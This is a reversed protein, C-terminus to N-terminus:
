KFEGYYKKAIEKDVKLLELYYRKAIKKNGKELNFILLKETIYGYDPSKKYKNFFERSKEMAKKKNGIKDYIEIIKILALDVISSDPYLINIKTFSSLALKYDKNLEHIEGIYYISKDKLTSKDFNLVMEYHKKSLDYNAKSYYIKGLSYNAKDGYEINKDIKKYVDIAEDYRKSKEYIRGRWYLSLDEKSLKLSWNIANNYDAMEYYLEIIKDVASEKESKRGEGNYIKEYEKIAAKKDNKIEYISAVILTLDENYDSKKFERKFQNILSIVEDHNNLVTEVNILGYKAQMKLNINKTLDYTKKYYTKAEAYKEKNYYTEAIMFYGYDESKPDKIMDSYIKKANDYQGLKFYAMAKNKNIDLVFNEYKKNLYIDAYKVASNYDDALIFLEVIKNISKEILLIQSDKKNIIYIFDKKGEDYRGLALLSVGKLYITDDTLNSKDIRNLLKQYEGNAAYISLLNFNIDNDYEIALYKLYIQEAKKEMSIKAYMNGMALYINKLYKRDKAFSKKYIEFYNEAGVQDMLKAKIIIMKYLNDVSKKDNYIVSYYQNALNYDDMQFASEGIFIKMNDRYEKPLKDIDINKYENYVRKFNDTNYLINVSYYIYEDNYKSNKLYKFNALADNNNELVMYTKAIAYSAADTRKIKISKQYNSVAKNYDSIKFYYDGLDKYAKIKHKEKIIKVMYNNAKNLDKKLLYLSFIEYVSQDYYKSNFHHELITNFQKIAMDYNDIRKYSIALMYTATGRKDLDENEKKLFKDLYISSEIFEEKNFYIKGLNFLAQKEYNGKSYIVERFMEISKDINKQTYYTIGLKYLGIERKKDTKELNKFYNFAAKYNKLEIEIIGLYYYAYDSYASSKLDNFVEKSKNYNKLSLYNEGLMIRARDYYGSDPYKIIFRELEEKALEYEKNNQLKVIYNLESKPSALVNINSFIIITLFVVFKKYM